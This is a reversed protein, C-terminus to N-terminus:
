RADAHRGAQPDGAVDIRGSTRDIRLLSPHWLPPGAVRVRHGRGRLDDIVEKGVSEYISLSGLQPRPQRFSGVFHDTGFRAATVADAPSMDFDISNLLLQLTAQDQGDGGAVSIALVPKGDELVLTPTLTIRPRKGPEVCNPHGKWNNFSQLRTGLRVGTGGALVGSWGSPTAAVVNGDGDAVLCTTTDSAPGGPGARKAGDPLLAKGHRPDGPRLRLSATSPDILPRRLTAYGKSLLQETPVDVFLPDAYYTDRDALALKMAEIALHITDASNHRSARLDFGELLNLTELLYPGQTWPGCKLVTYGRYTTSVPEEVRTVHTAFDVERLLGGNTECWTSIERAIPGRYFYDAVLRLGRERDGDGRKEADTLRRLTRALDRHWAEGRRDLIELTPDVVEAFTRTGHRSLATLCVDLVAPVAAPEVGSGPIGGPRDFHERTALKPAAGQGALVEVVGREASYIIIPVEGGFCYQSSDTVTLALLTAVAADVANGASELLEMGAAVSESGGAVVAGRRGSAKWSRKQRAEQRDKKGPKERKEPKKERSGEQSEHPPSADHERNWRVLEPPWAFRPASDRDFGELHAANERDRPRVYRWTEGRFVQDVLRAIEPDYAELEERTDVFNHDHDPPRNTDFYSQVAEAWYEEHDVAAYKGRWLGREVARRYIGKLRRDFGPNISTLGMRHITHAFEHVLVSEARYPDGRLRLLNEEGCSSAPRTRTAGLGRARMDWFRAPRLDSHEPVRTTLEDPAMIVLRTGNRTLARRVDPRKRLMRDILYAAELLAHDSVKRSSLIPFGDAVIAKHYFPSLQLRDRLEAPVTTVNREQAVLRAPATCILTLAAVQLYSVRRHLM